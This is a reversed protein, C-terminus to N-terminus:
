EYKLLRKELEYLKYRINKFRESTKNSILKTLEELVRSSEEARKTNAVLIHKINKRKFESKQTKKLVDNISDRSNILKKYKNIKANHRLKKFARAVDKANYYYRLIDEVVRIGEKLRNLNADIIRLYNKNQKSIKDKTNTIKM